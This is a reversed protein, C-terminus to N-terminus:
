SSKGYKNDVERLMEGWKGGMAQKLYWLRSFAALRPGSFNSLRLYSKVERILLNAFLLLGFLNLFSSVDMTLSKTFEAAPPFQSSLDLIPAKYGM